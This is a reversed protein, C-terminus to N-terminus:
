SKYINWAERDQEVNTDNAGQVALERMRQLMNHTENLAGEATQILSVGDQANRSAGELGRIQGRMKESIALGAADDGARNIRQGSSLKEMAKSQMNNNIGMQRHANMASMNHNIIM